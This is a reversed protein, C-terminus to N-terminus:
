RTKLRDSLWDAIYAIGITPNDLQCHESGGEERTFVKMTKDKSEVEAFLRRADEMSIQADTEGHTLLFPCQIKGLIGKLTWPELKKLAEEITDVGLFWNIHEGPVSLSTKFASEIRRKWVAHYDYQAGWAVCAKFRKEFAACRPAHYGGLSVGMVALRHKDVDARTELYDVAATGAVNSDHRGPMGRFRISEGNGPGDVILCAMGRKVLEPVGTLYQIEKTIDLGDFYVVAPWKIGSTGRMKVFYAPLNKGGEFPVEVPEISFFPLDPIGEKFLDVSRAYAKQSEATRPQLLREGAQVYAAARMYAGSATELYGKAQAQEALLAVKEAMQNWESFWAEANGDKGQLSICVKYIEGMEGGGWMSANIALRAAVSWTYNEPFLMLTRPAAPKTEAPQSQSM